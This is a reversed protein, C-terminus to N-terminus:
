ASQTEEVPTVKGGVIPRRTYYYSGYRYAYHRAPVGNLVAGVTQVGATRLRTFAHVVQDIRSYDRRV